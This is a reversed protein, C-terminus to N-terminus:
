LISGNQKILTNVGHGSAFLSVQRTALQFDMLYPEVSRHM